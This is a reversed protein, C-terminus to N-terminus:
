SMKIEELSSNRAEASTAGMHPAQLKMERAMEEVTMNIGGIDSKRSKLICAYDTEKSNYM